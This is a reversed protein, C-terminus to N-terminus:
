KDDRHTELSNMITRFEPRSELAKIHPDKKIEENRQPSGDSAETVLVIARSVYNCTLRGRM